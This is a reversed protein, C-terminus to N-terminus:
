VHSSLSSSAELCLLPLKQRGISWSDRCTQSRYSATSTTNPIVVFVKSVPLFIQAPFYPKYLVDRGGGM